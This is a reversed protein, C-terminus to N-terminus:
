RPASALGIGAAYPPTNIVHLIEHTRRDIVVVTGGPKEQEGSAAAGSTADSMDGSMAGAGHGSGGYDGQENRNSIYVFRGDPSIASGHPQALGEGHIVDSVTWSQTDVVTVTNVGLNGFWVERGDPSYSPHWPRAGVDVQHVLRPSSPDSIDFVLLEASIEATAVLTQGDPSIAYQVLVHPQDGSGPLRLLEAEGEEADLTVVTNEGLSGTYVWEGDPTVALAHPRPIFVDFEEIEMTERNIRGIRQPPNVAAMSRGVFLWPDTPSLALLGPREFEVSGVLNNQRDFKLIQNAAILSVYWYSGDPEVVIHHPKANAGYGMADLDVVDAVENTSLDIVTVAAAEQNAVYLFPGAAAEIRADPGPAPRAAPPACAAVGGPLLGLAVGLLLSKM